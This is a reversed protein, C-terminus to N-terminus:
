DPRGGGRVGRVDGATLAVNQETKHTHQKISLIKKANPGLHRRVFHGVLIDATESNVIRRRRIKKKTRTVTSGSCPHKLVLCFTDHIVDRPGFIRHTDHVVVRPGLRRYTATGVCFLLLQKNLILQKSPKTVSKTVKQGESMM